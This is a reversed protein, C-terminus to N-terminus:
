NLISIAKRFYTKTKTVLVVSYMRVYTIFWQWYKLTMSNVSSSLYFMCRVVFRGVKNTCM